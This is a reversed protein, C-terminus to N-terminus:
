EAWAKSLSIQVSNGNTCVNEIDMGSLCKKSLPDWVMLREEKALKRLCNIVSHVEAETGCSNEEAACEPCGCGQVRANVAMAFQGDCSANRKSKIKNESM